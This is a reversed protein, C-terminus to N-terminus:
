RRMTNTEWIVNQLVNANSMKSWDNPDINCNLEPLSPNLHLILQPSYTMNCIDNSGDETCWECIFAIRDGPEITLEYVVAKRLTKPELPDPIVVLQELWSHSEILARFQTEQAKTHTTEPHHTEAGKSTITVVSTPLIPENRLKVYSKARSILTGLNNISVPLQGPTLTSLQGVTMINHLNLVQQTKTGLGNIKNLPDNSM